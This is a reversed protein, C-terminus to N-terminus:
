QVWRVWVRVRVRWGVVAASGRPVGGLLLATPTTTADATRKDTEVDSAAPARGATATTCTLEFFVAEHDTANTTM